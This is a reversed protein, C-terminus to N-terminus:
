GAWKTSHINDHQALPATDVNERLRLLGLDSVVHRMRHWCDCVNNVCM